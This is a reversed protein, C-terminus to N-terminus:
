NTQQIETVGLITLIWASTIVDNNNNCSGISMGYRNFLLPMLYKQNNIKYDDTPVNLVNGDTTVSYAVTHNNSDINLTVAHGSADTIYRSSGFLFSQINNTYAPLTYTTYNTNDEVVTKELSTGVAFSSNPISTDNLGSPISYASNQTNILIGGFDRFLYFPIGLNNANKFNFTNVSIKYDNVNVGSDPFYFLPVVLKYFITIGYNTPQLENLESDYMIINKSVTIPKLKHWTKEVGMRFGETMDYNFDNSNLQLQHMNTM